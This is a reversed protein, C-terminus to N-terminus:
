AQQLNQYVYWTKACSPISGHIELVIEQALTLIKESYFLPEVWVLFNDLPNYPYAMLTEYNTAGFLEAKEM